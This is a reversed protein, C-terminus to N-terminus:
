ADSPSQEDASQNTTVEVFERLHLYLRHGAAEPIPATTHPATGHFYQRQWGLRIAEPDGDCLRSNFSSVSKHWARYKRHLEPDSSIDTISAELKEIVDLAVSVIMCIPERAGFEVWCDPRTFKWNMSVGAVAWDTEVLGELPFISDKPMNAPGRLLLAVGPPTRFLFPIFFTLIGEGFHSVSSYPPAGQHEIVVSEKTQTGLWKARISRDNRIVWGAQNAIRMPLCRNAFSRNSRSMWNRDSPAAAITMDFSRGLRYATFGKV